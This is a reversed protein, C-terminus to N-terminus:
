DPLTNPFSISVPAGDCIFASHPAAGLSDSWDQGYVAPVDCRFDTVTDPWVNWRPHAVAYEVTRGSRQATYGWYHETIFGIEGDPDIPHSAGRVNGSVSQWAGAQRWEYRLSGGDAGFDIRHRMRVARYPENYALRATWAIAPRPVLERVFVVGRKWRGNERRRVYARLNVEDFDRHLPVPVGLLRTELFRFAVISVLARGDLLDLETGRPVYRQVLARDAEYNVFLLHRWHATLFPRSM